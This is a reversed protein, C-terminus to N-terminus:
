VGRARASSLRTARALYQDAKATLYEPTYGNCKGSKAKRAKAAMRLLMDANSRLVHAANPMQDVKDMTMRRERSACADNGGRSRVICAAEEFGEWTREDSQLWLEAVPDFVYYKLNVQM